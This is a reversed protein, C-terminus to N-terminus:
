TYCRRVSTITEETTRAQQAINVADDFCEAFFEITRGGHESHYIRATYKIM